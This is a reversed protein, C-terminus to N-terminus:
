TFAGAAVSAFAGGNVSIQLVGGDFGSEFRFAHSFSVAAPGGGTAGTFTLVPSLLESSAIQNIGGVTWSPNAFTWVTTPQPNVLQTQTFGNAGTSFDFNQAAGMSAHRMAFLSLLASASTALIRRRGSITQKRANRKNSRIFHRLQTKMN